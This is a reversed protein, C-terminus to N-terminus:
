GAARGRLWQALFPDAVRRVGDRVAVPENALLADLARKVSSANALGSRRVFDAATPTSTPSSALLDLM